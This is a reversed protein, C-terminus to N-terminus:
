KKYDDLFGIIGFGLTLFLVPLIKPYDRVYFISTIVVSLLIIIGGMTPTGSKKLHTKPGDDRVTQGAKLKKLFPIIVPSLIVSVAFSIIVPVAPIATEFWM